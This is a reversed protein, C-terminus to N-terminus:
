AGCSVGQRSSNVRLVKSMDYPRGEISASTAEHDLDARM